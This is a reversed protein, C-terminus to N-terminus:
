PAFSKHRYGVQDVMLSEFERPGLNGSRSITRLLAWCAGMLQRCFKSSMARKIARPYWSFEFLVHKRARVQRRVARPRLDHEPLRLPVHPHASHLGARSALDVPRCRAQECLPFPSERSCSRASHFARRLFRQFPFVVRRPFNHSCADPPQVNCQLSDKMEAGGKGGGGGLGERALKRIAACFEASSLGGSGDRDLAQSAPRTPCCHRAIRLRFRAYM